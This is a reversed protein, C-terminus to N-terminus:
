WARLRSSSCPSPSSGSLHRRRLGRVDEQHRGGPRQGCEVGIRGFRHQEVVRADREVLEPAQVGRAGQEEGRLPKIWRERMQTAVQGLALAPLPLPVAGLRSTCPIGGSNTRRALSIASRARGAFPMFSLRQM